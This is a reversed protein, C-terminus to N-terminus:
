TIHSHEKGSRISLLLFLNEHEGITGVVRELGIQDWFFYEDSYFFPIWINKDILDYKSNETNKKIFISLNFLNSIM